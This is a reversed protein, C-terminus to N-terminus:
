KGPPCEQYVGYISYNGIPWQMSISSPYTSVMYCLNVQLEYIDFYGAIDRHVDNEFSANEYNNNKDSCGSFSAQETMPYITTIKIRHMRWGKYKDEPCGNSVM